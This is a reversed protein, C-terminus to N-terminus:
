RSLLQHGKNFNVVDHLPSVYSFDLKKQPLVDSSLVELGTLTM